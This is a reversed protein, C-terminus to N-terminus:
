DRQRTQGNMERSEWRNTKRDTWGDTQEGLPLDKQRDAWGNRQEGEGTM